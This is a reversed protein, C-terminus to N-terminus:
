VQWAGGYIRSRSRRKSYNIYFAIPVDGDYLGIYEGDPTLMHFNGRLTVDGKTSPIHQGEVIKQWPGDAISYEGDFYVQAIMAPEAQSSTANGYWLLVVALLFILLVGGMKLATMNFFRSKTKKENM